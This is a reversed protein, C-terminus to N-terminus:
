PQCRREAAKFLAGQCFLQANEESSLLRTLVVDDIGTIRILSDPAMIVDDIPCESFVKKEDYLGSIMEAIEKMRRKSYATDMFNVHVDDTENGTEADHEPAGLLNIALVTGVLYAYDDSPTSIVLDGVSLKGNVCTTAPVRASSEDLNTLEEYEAGCKTCTYPGYPNESDYIGIDRQFIGSADVVVDHRAQQHAGFLENGCRCKRISETNM